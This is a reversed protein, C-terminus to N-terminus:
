RALEFDYMIGTGLFRVGEESQWLSGNRSGLVHTWFAGCGGWDTGDVLLCINCVHAEPFCKLDLGYCM